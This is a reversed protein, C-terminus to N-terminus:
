NPKNSNLVPRFERGDVGVAREFTAINPSSAIDRFRKLPRGPETPSKKAPDIFPCLLFLDREVALREDM